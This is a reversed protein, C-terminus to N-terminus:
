LALNPFNGTMFLLIQLRLSMGYYDYPAADKTNVADNYFTQATARDSTVMASSASTSAFPANHYQGILSGTLSYGDKVNAIGMNKWFNFIATVYTQARSEGYWAYDIAARWQWRIADYKYDHSQGTAAAGNAQCWDPVLGTSTNRAANVIDYCKNAVSNWGSNGTFSAFIRYWAPAFYSPNTVNSGGWGDGPKLVYTSAEVEKSYMNNIMTSAENAYNFKSSTSWKKAAAILAFAIDEDADTAAGSGGDTTTFNGNADIHWGMLGNANLHLKVYSYLNDFLTQEGFYVALIMGYGLGESVTDNSTSGDRQVRQFGGAGSTTIRANKWNTWETQLMSNAAAQDPAVSSLGYPYTANYPFQNGVV